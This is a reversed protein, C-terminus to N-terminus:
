LGNNATADLCVGDDVTVAPAAIVTEDIDAIGLVESDIM